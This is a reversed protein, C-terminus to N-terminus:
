FESRAGKAENLIKAELDEINTARPRNNRMWEDAKALKAKMKPSHLWRENDPVELYLTLAENLNAVAIEESEGDTALEVNLARAVFVNQERYVIYATGDKLRKLPWFSSAKADLITIEAISSEAYGVNVNWGHSVDKVIPESSFGIHLVDTGDDYNITPGAPAAKHTRLNERIKEAVATNTSVM